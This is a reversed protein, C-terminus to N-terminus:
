QIVQLETVELLFQEMIRVTVQVKSGVRIDSITGERDGVLIKTNKTLEVHRERTEVRYRKHYEELGPQTISSSLNLLALTYLIEEGDHYFDLHEGLDFVEGSFSFYEEDVPEKEYLDGACGSLSLLFTLALLARFM